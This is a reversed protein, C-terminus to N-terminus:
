RERVGRAKEEWRGWELCSCSRFCFMTIMPLCFLSLILSFCSDLRWIKRAETKCVRNNPPSLWRSVFSQILSVVHLDIGHNWWKCKKKGKCPDANLLFVAQDKWRGERVFHCGNLRGIMWDKKKGGNGPGRKRRRREGRCCRFCNATALSAKSKITKWASKNPRPRTSSTPDDHPPLSISHQSVRSKPRRRDM